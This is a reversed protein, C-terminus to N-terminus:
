LKRETKKGWSQSRFQKASTTSLLTSRFHEGRTRAVRDSKLVVVFWCLTELWHAAAKSRWGVPVYSSRHATKHSVSVCHWATCRGGGVLGKSSSSNWMKLALSFNKPQKPFTCILSLPSCIAGFLSYFELLVVLCISHQKYQTGFNASSHRLHIQLSM